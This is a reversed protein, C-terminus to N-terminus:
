LNSRGQYRVWSEYFWQIATVLHVETLSASKSKADAEASACRTELQKVQNKVKRLEKELKGIKVKQEERLGESDELNRLVDDIGLTRENQLGRHALHLKEYDEKLSLLQKSNENLKETATRHEHEIEELQGSKKTSEETLKQLLANIVNLAFFKLSNVYTVQIVVIIKWVISSCFYIHFCIIAFRDIKEWDILWLNKSRCSGHRVILM